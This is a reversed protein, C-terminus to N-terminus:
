PELLGLASKLHFIATASDDYDLASYAYRAHGRAAEIRDLHEVDSLDNRATSAESSMTPLTSSGISPRTQMQSVPFSPSESVATTSDDFSDSRQETLSVHESPSKTHSSSPVRLSETPIEKRELEERRDDDTATLKSLSEQLRDIDFSEEADKQADKRSEEELVQELPAKSTPRGTMTDPLGLSEADVESSRSSKREIMDRTNPSPVTMDEPESLQRSVSASADRNGNVSEERASPRMKSSEVARVKCFTELREVLNLLFDRCTNTLGTSNSLGVQAAWYLCWYAIVPNYKNLENYRQIFNRISSFEKPVTELSIVSM